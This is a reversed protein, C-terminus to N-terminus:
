KGVVSGARRGLMVGCCYVFSTRIYSWAAQVTTSLQNLKEVFVRQGRGGMKRDLYTIKRHTISVMLRVEDHRCRGECFPSTGDWRHVYCLILILRCVLTALSFQALRCALTALTFQGLRFALTALTFKGLRRVLTALTFQALRCALTALPFKEEIM